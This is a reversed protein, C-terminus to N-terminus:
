GCSWKLAVAHGGHDRVVGKPAGTTGSTYLIYLPDTSSVPLCNVPSAHAIEIEWDFDRGKNLPAQAEVRQHIICREPKHNAIEIAKDLLPKYEIVKKGELGCSASVILKPKADDIRLALENPAFGGFVVSHIAGIRACALMAIVAEPIMPMYIIVRDGKGVGFSALLGAFTSVGELLEQYTLRRITHTVPSDYILALQGGRGMSVHYDVANYCTNLEGGTFWRIFPKNSDDLVKLYPKFWQIEQGARGWFEEPHYISKEYESKYGTAM